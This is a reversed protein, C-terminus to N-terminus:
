PAAAKSGASLPCTSPEDAWVFLDTVTAGRAQALLTIRGNHETGSSNSKLEPAAGAVPYRVRRRPPPKWRRFQPNQLSTSMGTQSASGMM